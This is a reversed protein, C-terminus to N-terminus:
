VNHFIQQTWGQFKPTAHLSHGIVIQQTCLPSLENCGGVACIFFGKFGYYYIINM